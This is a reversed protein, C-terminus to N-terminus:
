RCHSLSGTRLIGPPQFFAVVCHSIIQNATVAPLAAIQPNSSSTLKSQNVIVHVVNEFSEFGFITFRYGSFVYAHKEQFDVFFISEKDLPSDQHLILAM